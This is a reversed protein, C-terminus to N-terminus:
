KVGIQKIAQVVKDYGIMAVLWNAIIMLFINTINLSTWATGTYSYFLITGFGGVIVSVVLVVINSAYKVEAEDLMKKVGETLLGTIVALITLLSLFTEVTM